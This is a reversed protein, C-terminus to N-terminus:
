DDFYSCNFYDNNDNFYDDCQNDFNDDYIDEMDEEDMSDSICITPGGLNVLGNCINCIM